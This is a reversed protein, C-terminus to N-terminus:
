PTTYTYRDSKNYLVAAELSVKKAQKTYWQQNKRTKAPVLYTEDV